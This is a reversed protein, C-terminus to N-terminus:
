KKSLNELTNFLQEIPLNDKNEITKKSCLIDVLKERYEEKISWDEWSELINHYWQALTQKELSTSYHNTFYSYQRVCFITFVTFIFGILFLSIKEELSADFSIKVVVITSILLLLFSIISLVTWLKLRRKYEEKEDKFAQAFKKVEFKELKEELEEIQLDKENISSDLASISAEKEIMTANLENIQNSKESIISEKDQLLTNLEQISTDRDSITGTLTSISSEKEEIIAILEPKTKNHM